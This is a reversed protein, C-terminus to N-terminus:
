GAWAAFGLPWQTEPAGGLLPRLDEGLLRCCGWRLLKPRAQLLVLICLGERPCDQAARRGVHWPELAPGATIVRGCAGLDLGPGGEEIMGCVSRGGERSFM